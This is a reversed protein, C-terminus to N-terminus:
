RIAAMPGAASLSGTTGPLAQFIEPLATAGSVSSLVSLQPLAMGHARLFLASWAGGALIAQTCRM